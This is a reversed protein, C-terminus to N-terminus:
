TIGYISPKLWTALIAASASISIFRTLAQRWFRRYTSGSKNMPNFNSKGTLLIKTMNFCKMQLSIGQWSCSFCKSLTAQRALMDMGWLERDPLFLANIEWAKNPLPLHKMKTILPFSQSIHGQFFYPQLWSSTKYCCTFELFM